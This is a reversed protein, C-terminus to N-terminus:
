SEISGPSPVVQNVLKFNECPMEGQTQTHAIVDKSCVLLVAATAVLVISQAIGTHRILHWVEAACPSFSSSTPLFSTFRPELFFRAATLVLYTGVLPVAIQALLARQEHRWPCRV